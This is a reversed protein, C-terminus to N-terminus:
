QTSLAVIEANVLRRPFYAIRKIHGGIQGGAGSGGGITLRDVTPLTGSVDTAVAEGNRSGAFDNAKYAWAVKHTTDATVAIGAPGEAQLVSGDIVHGYGGLSGASASVIEIVETNGGNNLSLARHLVLDSGNRYECVLSGESPNYWESFNTGSMVHVDAARTVAVTTTPIPSSVNDRELQPLGIRLTIDGAGIFAVHHVLGVRATTGDTLTRTLAKRQAPLAADTPTFLASTANITAGVSTYEEVRINITANTLAGATMKVFASGAWVEAAAAVIQTKSETVVYANGVGSSQFRVDIYNIGNETGTGLVSLSALGNVVPAWNTPLVGVGAGVMTSNRISNTAAAESRLGYCEGTSPDHDIVPENIAATKLVGLADFYTATSARTTTIRGDVSRSNAFDLLLSPQISPGLTSVDLANLISATKGCVSITWSTYTGSGSIDGSAVSLVLAGTGSNYSVVGGIMYNAVNASNACILRQGVSISKGTQITLSKTGLGITLSTTSTASTGPAALASAASAAAAAAKAAPDIANIAAYVSNLETVSSNYEPVMAKQALVFAAAKTSFVSASDTAPDPADPLETVISITM